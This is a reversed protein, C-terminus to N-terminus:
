SQKVYDNVTYETINNPKPPVPEPSQDPVEKVAKCFGRRKHIYKLLHVTMDM